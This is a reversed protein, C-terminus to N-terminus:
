QNHMNKIIKTRRGTQPALANVHVVHASFDALHVALHDKVVAVDVTVGVGAVNEYSFVLSALSFNDQQVVPEVGLQGAMEPLALSSKQKTPLRFITLSHVTFRGKATVQYLIEPLVTFNPKRDHMVGASQSYLMCHQPDLINIGSGVKERGPDRIRIKKMGSEPDRIGSGPDVNFFQLIKVWFITKIRESIDDPNNM